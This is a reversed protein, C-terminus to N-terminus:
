MEASFLQINFNKKSTHILYKSIICTNGLDFFKFKFTQKTLLKFILNRPAKLLSLTEIEYSLHPLFLRNFDHKLIDITENNM